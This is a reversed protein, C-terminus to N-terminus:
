LGINLRSGVAGAVTSLSPQTVTLNVVMGVWVFSGATLNQPTTVAVSQAGIAATIPTVIDASSTLLTGASSYLGVFSGDSTGSGQTGATQFHVRGVTVANRIPVKQLYVTGAVLVTTGAASVPDCSAALLGNDEPRWGGGISTLSAFLGDQRLYTSTFEADFTTGTAGSARSIKPM